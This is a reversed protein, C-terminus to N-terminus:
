KGICFRSFITELIENTTIEGTISGLHYLADRLDQSVLDTPIGNELGQQVANLSEAAHLLAEYHRVNTVLVTNADISESSYCDFITTKLEEVDNTDKASIYNFGM